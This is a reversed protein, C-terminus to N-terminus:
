LLKNLSIDLVLYCLLNTVFPHVMLCVFLMRRLLEKRILSFSLSIVPQKSILLLSYAKCLVLELTVCHIFILRLSSTLFCLLYLPFSAM